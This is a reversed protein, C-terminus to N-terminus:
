ESTMSDSCLAALFDMNEFCSTATVFTGKYPFPIGDKKVRWALQNRVAEETLTESVCARIRLALHALSLLQIEYITIWPYVCVVDMTNHLYPLPFLSKLRRHADFIIGVGVPTQDQAATYIDSHFM